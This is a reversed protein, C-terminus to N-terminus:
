LLELLQQDEPTAKFKFNRHRVQGLVSLFTLNAAGTNENSNIEEGTGDM